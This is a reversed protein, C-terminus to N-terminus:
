FHGHRSTRWGRDYTEGSACLHSSLACYHGALCGRVPGLVVLDLHFPQTWSGAVATNIWQPTLGHLFLATAAIQDWTAGGSPDIATGLAFTAPIALWLMPAIRFLRRIFFAATGNAHSHWAFMLAIASTVFFLQVGRAGSQILRQGIADSPFVTLAVHATVVSLIAYGRLADLCVTERGM